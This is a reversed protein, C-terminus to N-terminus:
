FINTHYWNLSKLTNVLQMGADFTQHSIGKKQALNLQFELREHQWFTPWDTHQTNSQQTSGITNNQYWGFEPKLHQHMTALQQGLLQDSPTRELRIYEMVLYSSNGCIISCLPKPTRISNTHIIEHLGDAEAEFMFLLHASNSKIFWTKGSQDKSKWAQNICGGSVAQANSFHITQGTKLQIASTLQQWNM